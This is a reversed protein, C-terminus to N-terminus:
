LYVMHALILICANLKMSGGSHYRVSSVGTTLESSVGMTLESSVALGLQWNAALGRRWNAALGWWSCVEGEWSPHLSEAVGRCGDEGGGGWWPPSPPLLTSGEPCGFNEAVGLWVGRWRVEGEKPDSLLGAMCSPVSTKGAVGLRAGRPEARGGVPLPSPALQSAPDPDVASRWSGAGWFVVPIPDLKGEQASMTRLPGRRLGDSGISVVIEEAEVVVSKRSRYSRQIELQNFVRM